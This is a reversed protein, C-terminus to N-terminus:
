DVETLLRRVLGDVGREILALAEEFGKRGGYYPDPIERPTAGAFDMFLAPEAQGDPAMDRLHALVRNDMALIHDFSRFDQETIVRARHGLLTYGRRRAVDVARQDPPKGVHYDHIGAADAQVREALATDEIRSRLVGLATPSRCINGVCVFLVARTTRRKM